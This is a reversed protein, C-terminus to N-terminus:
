LLCGATVAVLLVEESLGDLRSQAYSRSAPKGTDLDITADRQGLRWLPYPGAFLLVALPSVAGVLDQWTLCLVFM